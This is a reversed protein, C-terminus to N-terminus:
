YYLFAPEEMKYIQSFHSNIGYKEEKVGDTDLHFSDKVKLKKYTITVLPYASEKPTLMKCMLLEALDIWAKYGRYVYIQDDIVKTHGAYGEGLDPNLVDFSVSTQKKLKDEIIPLIDQMSISTFTM